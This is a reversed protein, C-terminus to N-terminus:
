IQFVLFHWTGCSPHKLTLLFCGAAWLGHFFFSATMNMNSSTHKMNQMCHLPTFWSRAEIGLKWQATHNLTNSTYSLKKEMLTIFDFLWKVQIQTLLRSTFSQLQFVTCFKEGVSFFTVCIFVNSKTLMTVIMFPIQQFLKNWIQYPSFNHCFLQLHMSYVTMGPWFYTVLTLAQCHEFSYKLISM